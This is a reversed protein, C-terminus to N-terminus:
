RKLEQGRVLPEPLFVHWGFVRRDGPLAPIFVTCGDSKLSIDEEVSESLLMTDFDNSGKCDCHSFSSKRVRRSSGKANFCYSAGDIM